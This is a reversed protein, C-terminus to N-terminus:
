EVEVNHMEFINYDRWKVYEPSQIEQEYMGRDLPLDADLLRGELYNIADMNDLPDNFTDCMLADIITYVMTPELSVDVLTLSTPM